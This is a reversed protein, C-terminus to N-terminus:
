LAQMASSNLVFLFASLISNCKSFLFSYSNKQKRTAVQKPDSLVKVFNWYILIHQFIEGM